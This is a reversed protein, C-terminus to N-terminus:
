DYSRELDFWELRDEIDDLTLLKFDNRDACVNVYRNGDIWRGVGYDHDHLHGHVNIYKSGAPFDTVPQHSLVMGKYLIPWRIIDEVNDPAVSVIHEYDDHNGLIVHLRGHLEKLIEPDGVDGLIWVDDDPHVLGNWYSVIANHQEKVTAYPRHAYRIMGADNDHLDSTFYEM